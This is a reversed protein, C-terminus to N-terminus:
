RGAARRLLEEGAAYSGILLAALRDFDSEFRINLVFVRGDLVAPNAGQIRALLSGRGDVARYLLLTLSTYHFDTLANRVLNVTGAASGQGLGLDAPLSAGVYSLAGPGAAALQGEVIAMGSPDIHLPINGSLKGSGSLGNINLLSLLAGLDVDQVKLATDLPAAPAFSVDSLLLKGDAFGLAASDILM